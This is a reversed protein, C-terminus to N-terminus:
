NITMDNQRKWLGNKSYRVGQKENERDETPICIKILDIDLFSNGQINSIQVYELM